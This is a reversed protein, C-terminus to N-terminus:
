SAKRESAKDKKREKRLVKQEAAKLKLEHKRRNQRDQVWAKSFRVIAVRLLYVLGILCLGPLGYERAYQALENM